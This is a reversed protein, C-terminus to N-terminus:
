EAFLKAAAISAYWMAKDIPRSRGEQAIIVTYITECVETPADSLRLRYRRAPVTTPALMVTNIIGTNTFVGTNQLTISVPQIM